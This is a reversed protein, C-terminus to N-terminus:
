LYKCTIGHAIPKLLQSQTFLFRCALEQENGQTIQVPFSNCRTLRTLLKTPQM